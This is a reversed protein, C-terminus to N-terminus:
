GGRAGARYGCRYENANWTRVHIVLQKEQGIMQWLDPQETERKLNELWRRVYVRQTRWDGPYQHEVKKERGPTYTCYDKGVQQDFLFYSGSTHSLQSVLLGSTRLSPVLQWRFGTPEFGLVKVVQFVENSQSRLLEGSM